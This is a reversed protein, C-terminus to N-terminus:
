VAFAVKAKKNAGANYNIDAPAPRKKLISKTSPLMSDLRSSVVLPKPTVPHDDDGFPVTTAAPALPPPSSRPTTSPAAESDGNHAPRCADIKVPETSSPPSSWTIPLVRRKPALEDDYNPVLGGEPFLLSPQSWMCTFWSSMKSSSSWGAFGPSPRGETETGHESPIAV